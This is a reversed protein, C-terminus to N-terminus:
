APLVTISWLDASIQILTAPALGWAVYKAVLITATAIASDGAATKWLHYMEGNFAEYGFYQTTPVGLDNLLARLSEQKTTFENAYAKFNAVQLTHVAALTPDVLSSLMRAEYASIRQEATRM